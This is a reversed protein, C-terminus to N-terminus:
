HTASPGSGSRGRAVGVTKWLALVLGATFFAALFGFAALGVISGSERAQMVLHVFLSLLAVYLASTGVWAVLSRRPGQRGFSLVLWGAVLIGAAAYGVITLGNM